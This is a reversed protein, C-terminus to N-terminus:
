ESANLTGPHTELTEEKKSVKKVDENFLFM